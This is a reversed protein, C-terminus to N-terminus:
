DVKRTYNRSASRSASKVNSRPAGGNGAHVPKVPTAGIPIKGQLPANAPVPQALRRSEQIKEQVKLGAPEAPTKWYYLMQLAIIGNLVSALVYSWWLTRDGTETATTFVRALTGLLSSFVTFSSLQGTTGSTAITAIQPIKSSLSLPISFALLSRLTKIPTIEASFLAHTVAGTVAVFALAKPLKASGRSYALLLLIIVVNQITLFASEGYTNFPFLQRVNYAVVILQSATDLLYSTLSVGRVSKSSIINYIQPLKVIGGTYTFLNSIVYM